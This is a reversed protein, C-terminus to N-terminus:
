KAGKNTNTTTTLTTQNCMPCVGKIEPLSQKAWLEGAEKANKLTPYNIQQPSFYHEKNNRDWFTLTHIDPLFSRVTAWHSGGEDYHTLTCYTNTWEGHKM